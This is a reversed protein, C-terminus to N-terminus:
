NHAVVVGVWAASVILVSALDVLMSLGAAKMATWASPWAQGISKKRIVEAVFVGGIFGLFLGIIPVVFFGVLGALGGVIMVISPVGGERMWRAPILYKLGTALAILVVAFAAIGWGWTGGTVVGWVAVAGGVLFPGPLIPVITGAIGVV